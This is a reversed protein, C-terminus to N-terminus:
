LRNCSFRHLYHRKLLEILVPTFIQLDFKIDQLNVVFTRIVCLLYLLVTILGPLNVPLELIVLDFTLFYFFCSM